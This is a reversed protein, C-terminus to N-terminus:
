THCCAGFCLSGCFHLADLLRTISQPYNCNSCDAGFLGFFAIDSCLTLSDPLLNGFDTAKSGYLSSISAIIYASAAAAAWLPLDSLSRKEFRQRVEATFNYLKDKIMM